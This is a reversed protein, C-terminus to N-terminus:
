LSASIAMSLAAASDPPLDPWVDEKPKVKADGFARKRISLPAIEAVSQYGANVFGLILAARVEGLLVQGYKANYAAGEVVVPVRINVAPMRGFLIPVKHFISLLEAMTLEEREVYFSLTHAVDEAVIAALGLKLGPDVGIGGQPLIPENFGVVHTKYVKV